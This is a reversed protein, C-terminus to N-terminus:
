QWRSIPPSSGRCRQMKQSYVHYSGPAARQIADHVGHYTVSQNRGEEQVSSNEVKLEAGGRRAADEMRMINYCVAINAIKADGAVEQLCEITADPKTLQHQKLADDLSSVTSDVYVQNPKTLTAVKFIIYTAV